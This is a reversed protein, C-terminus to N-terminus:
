PHTPQPTAAGQAPLRSTERRRRALCLAVVVVLVGAGPIIFPPLILSLAVSGVAVRRSIHGRALLVFTLLIAAGVGTWAGVSALDHGSAFAPIGAGLEAANEETWLRGGIANVVQLNGVMVVVLAAAWAVAAFWVDAQKRARPTAWLMITILALGAFLVSASALHGAAHEGLEGYGNKFTVDATVGTALVAALPWWSRLTAIMLEGDCVLATERTRATADGRRGVGVGHATSVVGEITLLFAM